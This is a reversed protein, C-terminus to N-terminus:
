RENFFLVDEYPSFFPDSSNNTARNYREYTCLNINSSSKINAKQKLMEWYLKANCFKAYELRLTTQKDFDFRVRRITKKFDSRAKAM